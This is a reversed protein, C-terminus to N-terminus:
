LLSTDWAITQDGTYTVPAQVTGGNGDLVTVTVQGATNTLNLYLLVRDIRDGFVLAVDKSSGSAVKEPQASAIKDRRNIQLFTVATGGAADGIRFVYNVNQQLQGNFSM